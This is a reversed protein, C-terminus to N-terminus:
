EELPDTYVQDPTFRMPEPTEALYYSMPNNQMPALVVPGVVNPVDLRITSVPGGAPGAAENALALVGPGPDAPTDQVDGDRDQDYEAEAQAISAGRPFKPLLQGILWTTVILRWADFRTQPAQPPTTPPVMADVDHFPERHTHLLGLYHGIEHVARSADARAGEVSSLFNGAHLVVLAMDWGSYSGNNKRNIDNVIWRVTGSADPPTKEVLNGNAFLWLLTDPKEAAVNTRHERSSAAAASVIRDGEDESVTGARLETIENGSLYYDCRLRRDARLEVDSDVLCTLRIGTGVLDRNAAAVMAAVCAKVHDLSWAPPTHNDYAYIARIKLEMSPQPENLAFTPACRIMTGVSESSVDGGAPLRRQSPATAVRVAKAPRDGAAHDATASIIHSRALCWNTSRSSRDTKSVNDRRGTRLMTSVGSM